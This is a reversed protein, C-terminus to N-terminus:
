EGLVLIKTRASQQCLNQTMHRIAAGDRNQQLPSIASIRLAARGLSSDHFEKLQVIDIHGRGQGSYAYLAFQDGIASLAEALLILGEKEVDIVRRQGAGIQRGTSGSMDLLFSVAVHRERKERRFYVRDSPEDRRRRDVVRQVMADMDFDDGHDQRGLRRFAAPRITEFYRRLLKVAPGYTDLTHDVFDSSGEPGIREVVRCWKPRYDRIIGDWEDYLIQQSGSLGVQRHGKTAGELELWQQMPSAGFEQQRQSSQDQEVEKQDRPQQSTRHDSPTPWQQEPNNGTLSNALEANMDSDSEGHVLDPDMEGRYSWNTIPSYDGATEEAARPGPGLDSQEEASDQSWDKEDASVVSGIMEDLIQYLRDAMQIAEEATADAHLMGRAVEWMRSVVDKLDDRIVIHSSETTFHLLLSDIVMERATMGHLFSRIKVAEKSLLALDQRLGPYEQQM